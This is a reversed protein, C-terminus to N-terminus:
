EKESEAKGEGMNRQFFGTMLVWLSWWGIRELGGEIYESVNADASM